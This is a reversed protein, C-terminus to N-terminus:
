EHQHGQRRGKSFMHGWVPCTNKDWLRVAQRGEREPFFVLSFDRQEREDELIVAPVERLCGYFFLKGGPLVRM